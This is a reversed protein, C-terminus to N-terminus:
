VGAIVKWTRGGDYTHFVVGASGLLLGNGNAGLLVSSVVSPLGKPDLESAWPSGLAPGTQDGGSGGLARSGNPSVIIFDGNATVSAPVRWHYDLPIDWAM